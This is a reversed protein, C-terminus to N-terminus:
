TSSLEFEHLLFLDKVSTMNKMNASLSKGHSVWGSSLVFMKWIAHCLLVFSRSAMYLMM